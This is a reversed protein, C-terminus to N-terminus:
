SDSRFHDFTDAHRMPEERGAALVRIGPSEVLRGIETVTVNQVALAQRVTEVHEPPVAALLEYDEGGYLAWRVPDALLRRGVERTEPLIPLREAEVVAGLHAAEALYEVEELLGDSVDTMAHAYEALVAAALPSPTPRVHRSRVRREVADSPTIRGAQMLALGAASDGVSGTVLLRDGLRGGSRRVPKLAFGLVAVDVVVPGPSGVTDGGLLSIAYAEAAEKVGDYFAAVWSAPLAGPLAISTLIGYPTGGMAAVDSVNVAVAKYGIEAATMWDRRFHRGEVLMDASLVLPGQSVRVVAADDGLGVAIGERRRPERAAILQWIGREGLDGVTVEDVQKAM